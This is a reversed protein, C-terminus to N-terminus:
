DMEFVSRAGQLEKRLLKEKATLEQRERKINLLNEVERIKKLDLGYTGM